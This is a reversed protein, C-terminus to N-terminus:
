GDTEEAFLDNLRSLLRERMVEAEAIAEELAYIASIQNDSEAADLESRLKDLHTTLAALEAWESHNGEVAEGERRLIPL